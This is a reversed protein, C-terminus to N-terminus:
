HQLWAGIGLGKYKDRRQPVQDNEDCYEFLLTKWKQWKNYPNLYDDLSKKVYENEALKIYIDDEVSKIKEKQHQLWKGINHNKYKIRHLPARKNENCYKFLLAMNHEFGLVHSKVVALSLGEMVEEFDYKVDFVSEYDCLTSIDMHVIKINNNETKNVFNAILTDDMEHMATLIKILDGYDYTDELQSYHIPVLVNCIKQNEYLRLGRGVCQTVDISSSRPDIFAITDTCPLDVGANLVRSSCIIAIDSTEYEAFIEKRKMMSTNGCMTFIKANINFKLFVYALTKKYEVASAITNHYTLIKRSNVTNMVHLAIMVASILIEKKINVGDKAIFEEDILDEMNKPVAYTIIKFDLVYGDTKAQLYPYNFVEEGYIQKNNMSICREDNGKYYKPTATFFVREDILCNDDDLTYGFSDNNVTVHAEDFLGLDFKCGKLLKSSQYTCLVIIKAKKLERAIIASKTTYTINKSELALYEELLDDGVEDGVEDNDENSDADNDCTLSSRDFKSCICLIKTKVHQKLNRYFQNILQLSPMLVLVRNAKKQKIYEIMVISKGTGCFMICQKRDSESDTLAKLADVQCDRLVIDEPERVIPEPDFKIENAIFNIFKRNIIKSLDHRLIWEIDYEEIIYRNKNRVNTVLVKTDLYKRRAEEIFGLIQDKHIALNTKTRWKCQVAIWENREKYIMDIGNDKTGLNLNDRIDTPVEKFLYVEFRKFVYYYKVICEFIFGKIANVNHNFYENRLNLDILFKDLTDINITDLKSYNTIVERFREVTLM